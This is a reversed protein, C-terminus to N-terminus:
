LSRVVGQFHIQRPYRGCWCRSPHIELFLRPYSRSCIQSTPWHAVRRSGHDVKDAYLFQPQGGPSNKAEVVLTTLGRHATTLSAALGAPGAGIIVVDWYSLSDFDLDEALETVKFDAM